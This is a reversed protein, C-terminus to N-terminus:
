LAADASSRTKGVWFLGNDHQADWGPPTLTDSEAGGNRRRTKSSWSGAIGKGEDAKPLRVSRRGCRCPGRQSEKLITDTYNYLHTYMDMFVDMHRYVYSQHTLVDACHTHRADWWVKIKHAFLM